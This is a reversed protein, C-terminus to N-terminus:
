SGTSKGNKWCIFCYPRLWAAAQGVTAFRRVRRTLFMNNEICGQLSDYDDVYCDMGEALAPFDVNAGPCCASCLGCAICEDILIPHRSSETAIARVPCIGVCTGCRTCLGQDIVKDKLHSFDEKM